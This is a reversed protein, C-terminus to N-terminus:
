FNNLCCFYFILDKNHFFLIPFFDQYIDFNNYHEFVVATVTVVSVVVFHIVVVLVIVFKSTDFYRFSCIKSSILEKSSISKLLATFDLVFLLFFYAFTFFAFLTFLRFYFWRWRWFFLLFLYFCFLFLLLIHLYNSNKYFTILNSYIM